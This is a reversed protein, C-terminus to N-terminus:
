DDALPELARVAKRVQALTVSAGKAVPRLVLAGTLASRGLAPARKRQIGRAATKNKPRPKM